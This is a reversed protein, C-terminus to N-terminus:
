AKSFHARAYSIRAENMGIACSLRSKTIKNCFLRFWDADIQLQRNLRSQLQRTFTFEPFVRGATNPCMMTLTMMKMMNMTHNTWCVHGNGGSYELSTQESSSLLGINLPALDSVIMGHWMHRPYHLTIDIHLNLHCKVLCLGNCPCRVINFNCDTVCSFVIAFLIFVPVTGDEPRLPVAATIVCFSCVAPPCEVSSCCGGPVSSWGAHHTTHVTHGADVHFCESSASTFRPRTWM